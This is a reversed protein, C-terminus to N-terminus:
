DKEYMTWKILTYVFPAAMIAYAVVLIGAITNPPTVLLYLIKSFGAVASTYFNLVVVWFVIAKLTKDNM